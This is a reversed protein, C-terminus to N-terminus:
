TVSRNLKGLCLSIILPVIFVAWGLLQAWYPYGEYPIKIDNIVQNIFLYSLALPAIFKISIVWWNTLKANTTTNIYNKLERTKYFWGAVIAQMLGVMVLGYSTIYHDVLDLFYLGARTTFILGALFCVFCVLLAIISRNIAISKKHTEDAIVTSIAEVLSFASDIGLSFLMIFFLLGFIAAAWKPKFMAIAKPYVIFALGPGALKSHDLHYRAVDNKSIPLGKSNLEKYTYTKTTAEETKLEKIIQINKAKQYEMVMAHPVKKELALNYSMFGITSFVAFGAIISIISNLFATWYTSKVLEQKKDNYSGYAIMTGFGLTLTFFIQAIAANWVKIDSLAKKIDPIIYAKIGLFAGQGLTIGRIALIIILLLPLPMTVMVVKGASKAGKWISFYIGIWVIIFAAFIPTQISGVQGINDSLNLIEKFFFSSEKGAWSVNFSHYFFLVVWAIVVCYYSTIIFGNFIGMFGVDAFNKNLSAMGEVAGKQFKQGIAFELLLMPVGILLLIALYPILFAGGGYKYALYPFRWLNGLGAASGVAAFIFLLRSGWREREM